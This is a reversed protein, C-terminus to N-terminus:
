VGVAPSIEAPLAVTVNVVSSGAPGHGATLEEIVMVMLGAAVTLAPGLWVTQALLGAVVKAPEKPPAAELAVQLPAPEKAGLLVVKFAVYVGVAPSIEAPLAVTVNVVSSGAPGQGATLEEMVMVM